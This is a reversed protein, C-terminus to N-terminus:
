RLLAHLRQQADDRLALLNVADGPEISRAYLAVLWDYVYRTAAHVPQEGLQTLRTRSAATPQVFIASGKAIRSAPRQAVPQEAYGLWNIFNGIIARLQAAGAQQEASARRLQQGLSLHQSASLLSLALQQQTDSSLLAHPQRSWQRLHKCWLAYAQSGNDQHTLPNSAIAEPAAFLDVADNFLGSM